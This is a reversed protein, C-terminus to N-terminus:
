SKEKVLAPPLVDSRRRRALRGYGSTDRFLPGPGSIGPSTESEGSPTGGTSCGSIGTPGTSGSRPSSATDTAWGRRPM